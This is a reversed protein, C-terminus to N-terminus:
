GHGSHRFRSEALFFIRVQSRATCESAGCWGLESDWSGSSQCSRVRTSRIAVASEGGGGTEYDDDMVASRGEGNGMGVGM